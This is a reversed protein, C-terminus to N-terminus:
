RGFWVTSESSSSCRYNRNVCSYFGFNNEQRAITYQCAQPLPPVFGCMTAGAHSFSLPISNGNYNNTQLMYAKCDSCEYGRVNIYEVSVCAGPGGIFKM